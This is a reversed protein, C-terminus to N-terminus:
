ACEVQGIGPSLDRYCCGGVRFCASCDYPNPIPKNCRWPTPYTECRRFYSVCEQQVPLWKYCEQSKTAPDCPECPPCQTLQVTVNESNMGPNLSGMIYDSRNYLLSEKAVKYSSLSREATFKPVINNYRRM